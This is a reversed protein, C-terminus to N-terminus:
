KGPYVWESLVAGAGQNTVSMYAVYRGPEVAFKYEGATQNPSADITAVAQDEQNRLVLRM